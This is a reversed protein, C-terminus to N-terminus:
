GGLFEQHHGPITKLQAPSGTMVVQGAEVVIVWDARNVVPPRHSILITTKGRRHDLLAALVATESAPDLAGTSEDLILVPPDSVLARALALRQKQGGSLNAGFEGLVTHYQDPLQSIFGDAGTIQCAAVIAEFSAQPHSLRFNQLITRTWFHAEQPVLVVQQRWCELALDGQNFNGLRLQGGQPRYLSALLKALTSKGCGSAGVIATVQGGPITMALNQLVEQRGPYHFSLNTCVMDGQASLSVWPKAGDQDTEPTAELVEALRQMIAQVRILEYTFMVGRSTFLVLNLNMKNFAILQGISLQQDIVLLSGLGLIALTGLDATLLSLVQTVVALRLAGLTLNGLRGFRIQLDSWLQPAVNSAKLTIAGKFTEVLVAQNDSSTVLMDRIKQRLRRLVLVTPLIMLLTIGLALGFLKLNYALMLGLSVLAIFGEMPLTIVAQTVLSNIEQIDRLRSTVEGSRHTEYYSTPLRLLQRGFALMLGLELRQSFHATLNAQIQQLGASFLLLSGVGIVLTKLLDLDGRILVDDTLVQLALPVALALLGLALNLAAVELLLGRDRAAHSLFRGIGPIVDDPQQDFRQPDPTLLLMMGNAWAQVLEQRKLYRLGVGPDAVVYRNGRKGYLVVWHYGKWHIIAPLPAAEIQDILAASAKVAQADFGLAQAGRELGLLTTGLQGTGVVERAHGIALLRGHYRAVTALCAAGCDEESHQLVTPYRM